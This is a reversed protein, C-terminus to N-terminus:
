SAGEEIVEVGADIPVWRLLEVQGCQGVLWGHDAEEVDSRLFRITAPQDVVTDIGDITMAEGEPLEELPHSHEDLWEEIIATLEIYEITLEDSQMVMAAERLAPVCTAAIMTMLVTAILVELLTLGRPSNM